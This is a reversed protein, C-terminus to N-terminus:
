RPESGVFWWRGNEQYANEIRGARLLKRLPLGPRQDSDKLLGLRDLERAAPVARITGDPETSALRQLAANIRVLRETTALRPLLPRRATAPLTPGTRAPITSGTIGHGKRTGDASQRNAFPLLYGGGNRRAFARLLTDEAAAPDNTEAWSVRFTGLGSLTMLWHGGAHPGRGGLPSRYFQGVRRAVSKGALGIYVVPENPVWFSGLRAVLDEVSPRLDDVRLTPVRDIWAAIARPDIPASALPHPSEVVYIGPGDLTPRSGWAVQGAPELDADRLLSEATPARM